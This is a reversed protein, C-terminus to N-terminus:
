KCVNKRNVDILEEISHEVFKDILDDAGQKAKFTLEEPYLPTVTLLNIQQDGYRIKALSDPLSGTPFLISSTFGTGPMCEDDENSWAITHGFGLWTNQGHPISAISKLHQIPWIEEPTRSQFNELNWDPPLFMVAEIYQEDELGEPVKMPLRSIGCTMLMSFPRYEANPKMWYVDVHNEDEGTEPDHFVIIEDEEFFQDLHADILEIIDLDNEKHTM